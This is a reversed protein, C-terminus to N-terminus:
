YGVMDPLSKGVSCTSAANHSVKHYVVSGINCDAFKCKSSAPYFSKSRNIYVEFKDKLSGQLSDGVKMKYLTLVSLEVM